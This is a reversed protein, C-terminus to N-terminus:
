TEDEMSPPLMEQVKELEKRLEEALGEEDAEDDAGEDFEDDLDDQPLDLLDDDTASEDVAPAELSAAPDFRSGVRGHVRDQRDRLGGYASFHDDFPGQCMACGISASTFLILVLQCAYRM